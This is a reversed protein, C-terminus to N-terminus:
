RKEEEDTHYTSCEAEAAEAAVGGLVLTTQSDDDSKPEEAAAVEAKPEEAKSAEAQAEEAKAEEAQPAEAKAEEAKPEEAAM